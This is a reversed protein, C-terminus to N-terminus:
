LNAKDVPKSPHYKRFVYTYMIATVVAVWAASVIWGGIVDTPFHVGLYLRSFGIVLGYLCAVFIIAYRWRTKWALAVITLALASSAMAHGSPFSFSTETILVGWLDPREREFVLKLLLSLLAAGGVAAAVFVARHYRKKISYYTVFALSIAAVAIAGGLDTVTVFFADLGASTHSNIWLLISTDFSVTVSETVSDALVGFLLTAIIFFGFAYSLRVILQKNATVFSSTM